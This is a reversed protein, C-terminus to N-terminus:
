LRGGALAARTRLNCVVSDRWAEDASDAATIGAAGVPMVAYDCRVVVVRSSCASLGIVAFLAILLGVLAWAFRSRSRIM